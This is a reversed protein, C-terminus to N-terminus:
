FPNFFTYHLLYALTDTYTPRLALQPYKAFFSNLCQASKFANKDVTEDFDTKELLLQFLTGIDVLFVSTYTIVFMFSHTKRGVYKPCQSDKSTLTKRLFQANVYRQDLKGSRSAPIKFLMLNNKIAFHFFFCVFIVLIRAPQTPRNRFNLREHSGYKQLQAIWKLLWVKQQCVLWQQTQPQSEEQVNSQLGQLLPYSPLIEPISNFGYM